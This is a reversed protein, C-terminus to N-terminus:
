NKVCCTQLTPPTAVVRDDQRLLITGFFGIDSYPCRNKARNFADLATKGAGTLTYYRMNSGGDTWYGCYVVCSWTPELASCADKFDNQHMKFRTGEYSKLEVLDNESSNNAYGVTAFTFVIILICLVKM